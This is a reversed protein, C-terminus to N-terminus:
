SELEQPAEFDALIVGFGASILILFWLPVVVGFTLSFVRPFNQVFFRPVWCWRSKEYVDESQKFATEVTKSTLETAKNLQKATSVTVKTVGKATSKTANTVGKALGKTTMATSQLLDKTVSDLSLIVSGRPSRPSRSRGSRASKPTESALPVTFDKVESNEFSMEISVAANEGNEAAVAAKEASEAAVVDNETLVVDRVDNTVESTMNNDTANTMKVLDSNTNKRSEILPLPQHTHEARVSMSDCKPSVTTNKSRKTHFQTSRGQESNMHYSASVLVLALLM